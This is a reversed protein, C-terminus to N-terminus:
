ERYKTAGYEVIAYGIKEVANLTPYRRGAHQKILAQVVPMLIKELEERQEKQKETNSELEM